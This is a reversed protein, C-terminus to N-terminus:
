NRDTSWYKLCDAKLQNRLHIHMKNILQEAREVRNHFKQYYPYQNLTSMLDTLDGVSFLTCDVIDKIKIQFNNKQYLELKGKFDEFFNFYPFCEWLKSNEIFQPTVRAEIFQSVISPVCSNKVIRSTEAEKVNVGATHLFFCKRSSSNEFVLFILIDAKVINNITTASKLLSKNLEILSFIHNGKFKLSIRDETVKNTLAVIRLHRKFNLLHEIHDRFILIEINRYLENPFKQLYEDLRDVKRLQSIYYMALEAGASSSYSLFQDIWLQHVEALIKMILSSKYPTIQSLNQAQIHALLWDLAYVAIVDM